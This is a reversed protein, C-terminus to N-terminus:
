PTRPPIQIHALLSDIHEPTMDAGVHVTDRLSRWFGAPQYPALHGAFPLSDKGLDAYVDMLYPGEPLKDFHFAGTTDCLVSTPINTSTRLRVRIKHNAGRIKGAFTALKLPNVTEFTGLQVAPTPALAKLKAATSDPKANSLAAIAAPKTQTSDPKSNNAAIKAKSTDTAQAGLSAAKNTASDAKATDLPSLKIVRYTVGMSLAKTPQLRIRVPDIQTAHLPISDKGTVLRLNHELTDARLPLNYALEMFPLSDTVPVMGFMRFTLLRQSLSDKAPIWRAKMRGQVSCGLYYNSDTVVSDFYLMLKKTDAAIWARDAIRYLSSDMHWLGCTKNNTSDLTFDRSFEVSAIHPAEITTGIQRPSATDQSVMTLFLTDHFSTDVQIDREGLGAIENSIDIRNNNNVDNFAAVRYRGPAIGDIRFLGMSDTQSLYLLPEKLLRPASDPGTFTSDHLKLLYKRMARQSEGVPYLGITPFRKSHALSDPLLVYGRVQLTDVKPGTSFVLQFPRSMGNGHLDQLASSVTVTYTTLSDLTSKSNLVLVDEEVDPTLAKELPPSIRVASRPVPNMIWKDFQIHVDVQTPTMTARPAPSAAVVYPPDKDPPGGTPPLVTACSLLFVMFLFLGAWRGKPIGLASIRACKKAISDFKM